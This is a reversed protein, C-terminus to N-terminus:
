KLAVAIVPVIGVGPKAISRLRSMLRNMRDQKPYQDSYGINTRGAHNRLKAAIFLFRFRATEMTTHKLTEVTEEESRQMPLLRCNLNYALMALQFHISFASIVRAGNTDFRGSPHASLGADNNSEKIPNEAPALIQFRMVPAGM